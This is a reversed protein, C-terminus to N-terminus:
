TGTSSSSAPEIELGRYLEVTKAVMREASFLEESRAAGAATRRAAEAPEALIEELARRIGDAGDAERVLWGTNPGILESAGTSDFAVVPRGAVLSQALVRPLGERVSALVTCDMTTLWGPVEEPAVQGAFHIRDSLGADSMRRALDERLPGDGVLVLHVRPNDTAMPIVADLLCDHGKYPVLRAVSGIAIADRPIGRAERAEVQGERAARFPALDFGSPIRFFGAKPDIGVSRAEAEVADGVTVLRTTMAAASREARVYVNRILPNQGPYYPLGHITHVINAVKERYAARRGLIGAKSSHTHVLKPQVDRLRARLGRYAKLDRFFSVERLLNEEVDVRIGLDRVAGLLSGERGAQPGTILMVEDHGYLPILGELTQLVTEQAGGVIMRTIIHVLTM